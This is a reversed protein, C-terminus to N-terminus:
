FHRFGTAAAAVLSGDAGRLRLGSAAEIRGVPTLALGLAAALQEVAPQRAPPVCFCLEYDDGGALAFEIAEPHGILAPSLPLRALALEAGAGSAALIHGLDAALGDSIDIAATALGRLRQGLALRPEPLWYRDLWHRQAENLSDAPADLVALAARADGLTGSVYVLDGPRAGGRTLAAGAPVSGMVQVTAVRQPGRTTDGGALSLELCRAAAGLGASFAALWAEDVHPLTLALTFALPEAGMAALDSAAVRLAREGLLRPDAAAPFHVGEVVTDITCALQQGPALQLLACDDGVGLVVEDRVAGLGTFYRAILEFEGFRAAM